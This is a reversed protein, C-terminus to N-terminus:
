PPLTDMVACHEPQLKLFAVDTLQTLIQSVGVEWLLHNTIKCTCLTRQPSTHIQEPTLRNYKQSSLWIRASVLVRRALLAVHLQTDGVGQSSVSCDVGCFCQPHVFINVSHSSPCVDLCDVPILAPCYTSKSQIEVITM